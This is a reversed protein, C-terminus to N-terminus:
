LTFSGDYDMQPRLENIKLRKEYSAFQPASEKEALDLTTLDSLKGLIPTAFYPTSLAVSDAKLKATLLDAKYNKLTAFTENKPLKVKEWTLTGNKGDWRKTQMDFSGSTNYVVISDEPRKNEDYKICKLDVGTAELHLKKAEVWRITGGQVKWLFDREKYLAGYKFFDVSFDLFQTLQEDPNAAYEFVYKSWPNALEPNIKYQIIAISAQLFDFLEPYVPVEKAQLQNCNEQLKKFQTDNLLSGKILQPLQEKLYAQASEEVVLQQWTKVFKDREIPFTQAVLSPVALLLGFFLYLFSKM